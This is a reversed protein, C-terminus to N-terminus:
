ADRRLLVLWGLLLSGLAWLALVGLGSWPAIPLTALDRTAQVATGASMPGIQELRRSWTRDTVVRAVIPWAYLLALVIGAAAAASRTAAALGLSLLGVLVLYLVSGIAARWVLAHDPLLPRAVLLAGAVGAAAAALSVAVLVAAKAALLRTRGPIAALTTRMMGTGYEHGVVLAALVAVVAQGLQVGTLSVKTLDATCVTRCSVAGAALASLGITAAATGLLLWWTGPSTRLKTWEAHLAPKFAANM